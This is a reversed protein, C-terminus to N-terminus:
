ARKQESHVKIQLEQIIDQISINKTKDYTIELKYNHEEKANKSILIDKTKKNEM